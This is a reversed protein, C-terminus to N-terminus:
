VGKIADVYHKVTQGELGPATNVEFVFAGSKDSWGVDVGGFDLGLAACARIAVDEIGKDFPRENFHGSAFVWGNTHSRIYKNADDAHGNRKLKELVRIVRGKCVHLRFERSKRIYKTYFLHRGVDTGSEYVKIGRGASGRDLDRGFVRSKDAWQQAVAQDRTCELTPVNHEKLIRFTQLKSCASRVADQHNLVSRFQPVHHSAGWNIVVDTFRNRYKSNVRKILRGGLGRALAWASRSPGYPYVWYKPRM